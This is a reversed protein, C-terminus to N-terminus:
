NRGARGNLWVVALFVLAEGLLQVEFPFGILQLINTLVGLILAGVITQAVNGEGGTLKTGGLLVAVIADFETGSGLESAGYNLRSALLVGAGAALIGMLTFLIMQVTKPSIGSWRSAEANGGIAYICRGFYTRRLVFEFFGAVVLLIIVTIPVGLISDRGAVTFADISGIMFRAQTYELTLSLLIVQTGLTAIFANINFRMVLIGNITGVLAGALLALFIAPWMGFRQFSIVFVSATSAVSGVSLDFKGCLILLTMGVAMIAKVSVNRVVNLLNSATLFDPSLLSAVVLLVLLALYAGKGQVARELTRLWDHQIARKMKPHAQQAVM